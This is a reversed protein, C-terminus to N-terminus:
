MTDTHPPVSDAIVNEAFSIWEPLAEFKDLSTLRYTPVVRKGYGTMVCGAGMYGPYVELVFPSKVFRHAAFDTEGDAYGCSKIKDAIMQNTVPGHEIM